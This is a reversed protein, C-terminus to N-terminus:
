FEGATVADELERADVNLVGQTILEMLDNVLDSLEYEINQSIEDQFLSRIPAKRKIREGSQGSRFSFSCLIFSLNM